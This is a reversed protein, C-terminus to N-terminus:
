TKLALGAMNVALKELCRRERIGSLTFVKTQDRDHKPVQTLSEDPIAMQIGAPVKTGKSPNQTAQLSKLINM